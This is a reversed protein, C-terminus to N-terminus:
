DAIRTVGRPIQQTICHIGGGGKALTKGGVGIVKRDSFVERLIGMPRDDQKKDGAVPVLVCGNGIYFNMHAVKEALPIEIVKLKRGKADTSQQLRRRADNGVTYNPDSRLDTTHLLVVGPRAFAALGDVHGDTIPDPELGKGLWIVKETGLSAKLIKEVEAKKKRPNRNKHLMCQETTIVTGEGDLIVGGGELVLDVPYIPLGFKAALRAKLLADHQYAGLKAGWGNFTFGAVCRQKKKNVLVMPGSDRSWGDNLPFEILEIERNLIRPAVKRDEPRVVMLVKEYESLANAVGAWQARVTSMKAYGRWNQPPPMAMVTMEHPEWEGPYYFGDEFPTANKVIRAGTKAYDPASLHSTEANLCGVPLTLAGATSAGHVIFERRTM